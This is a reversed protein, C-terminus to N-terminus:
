WGSVAEVRMNVVERRRLSTKGSKVMAVSVDVKFRDPMDGLWDKFCNPHAEAWTLTHAIMLNQTDCEEEEYSRLASEPLAMPTYTDFLADIIDATFSSDKFYCSIRFCQLLYIAFDDSDRPTHSDLRLKGGSYLWAVYVNMAEGALDDPTTWCDNWATYMSESVIGDEDVQMSEPAWPKRCFPCSVDHRPIWGRTNIWEQMCFDHMNQGCGTRCFELPEQSNIM